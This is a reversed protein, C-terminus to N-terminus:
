IGLMMIDQDAEILNTEMQIRKVPPPLDYEKVFETDNAYKWFMYMDEGVIETNQIFVEDLARQLSAYDHKMDALWLCRLIRAIRMFNHNKQTIWFDNSEYFNVMRKLSIEINSQIKSDCKMTFIDLSDLVPALTYERCTLDTPFLWPIVDKSREIKKDSLTQLEILSRGRIDCCHNRLFRIVHSSSM